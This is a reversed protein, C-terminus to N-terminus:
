PKIASGVQGTTRGVVYMRCDAHCLAGYNKFMGETTDTMTVNDQKGLADLAQKYTFIDQKHFRLKMQNFMRDCANKTHGRVYFVFEVELFFKMEVLYAALRLVHNNKNQGGCNDMSITLRKRPSGKMLWNKEHLNHMPMSAV